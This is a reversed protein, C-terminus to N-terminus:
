ELRQKRRREARRATEFQDFGTRGQMSEDPMTRLPSQTSPEGLVQNYGVEMMQESRLANIPRMGPPPPTKRPGPISTPWNPYRPQIVAPTTRNAELAGEQLARLEDQRVSQEQAKREDPTLDHLMMDTAMSSTGGEEESM